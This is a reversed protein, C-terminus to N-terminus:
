GGIVLQDVAIFELRKDQRIMGNAENDLREGVVLGSPRKRPRYEDQISAM